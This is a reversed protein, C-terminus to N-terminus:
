LQINLFVAIANESYGVNAQNSQGQNRRIEITGRAKRSLQKTLGLSLSQTKDVRGTTMSEVRSALLTANATTLATVRRTLVASAGIQDTKDNALDFSGGPASSLPERRTDFLSLLLTTKPSSFVVSAQLQKQLFTTNTFYNVSNTLTGPLSGDQILKNVAQARLVPDSITGSLLQNLYGATDVATPKSFQSPTTTVSEDYTVIWNSTRRRTAALLSYTNGYYKRGFSANLNTRPSVAWEFGASWSPGQSSGGLLSYENRDYGVSGTLRFRPLLLYSLNGTVDRLKVDDQGQGQGQYHIEQDSYHLGWGVTRFATGSNTDFSVTNTNSNTLGGANSSVSDLAYRLETTAFTGFQHHLYPSIRYTRVSTRNGSDNINDTQQAGFASINQQTISAASDLYLLNEIFRADATAHLLNAFSSGANQNAYYTEQAGYDAYVNLNPGKRTLSISPTVQTVFDSKAQPGPALNVNDTYTESIDARPVITWEGAHVAPSMLLAAAAAISRVPTLIVAGGVGPTRAKIRNGIDMDM